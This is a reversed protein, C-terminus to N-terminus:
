PSFGVQHLLHLHRCFCVVSALSAPVLLSLHLPRRRPLNASLISSSLSPSPSDTLHSATLYHHLPNVQEPGRLTLSSSSWNPPLSQPHRLCHTVCASVRCTPQTLFRRRASLSLSLSFSPSLSITLSPHSPGSTSLPLLNSTTRLVCYACDPNCLIRFTQAYQGPPALKAFPESTASTAERASPYLSIRQFTSLYIMM